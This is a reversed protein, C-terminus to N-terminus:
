IVLSASDMTMLLVMVKMIFDHMIGSVGARTFVKYGLKHPKSKMYRKLPSRGKFPIIPEDVSQWEEPAVANMNKKLHKVLPQVKFLRDHGEADRPKAQCYDNMHLCQHIAEFRNRSM